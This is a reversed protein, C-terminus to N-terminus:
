LVSCNNSRPALGSDALYFWGARSASPPLVGLAIVSGCGGRVVRITELTRLLWGTARASNRLPVRAFPILEAM